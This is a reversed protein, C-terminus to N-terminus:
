AAQGPIMGISAEFANYSQIAPSVIIFYFAQADIAGQCLCRIGTFQEKQPPGVPNDDDGRISFLPM